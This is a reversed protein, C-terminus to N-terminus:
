PPGLRLDRPEPLARRDAPPESGPGREWYDENEDFIDQLEKPTELKEWWSMGKGFRDQLRRAVKEINLPLGDIPGGYSPFTFSTTGLATAVQAPWSLGTHFVAGSSLGHTLSDGVTVLPNTPNAPVPQAGVPPPGLPVGLTPDTIRPPAVDTVIVEAPTQSDLMEPPLDSM